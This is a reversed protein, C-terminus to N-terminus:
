AVLNMFVKSVEDPDTVTIESISLATSGENVTMTITFVPPNDNIDEIIFIFKLPTETQKENPLAPDEYAIVHFTFMENGTKDRDIPDVM